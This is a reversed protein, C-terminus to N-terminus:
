PSTAVLHPSPAEDEATFRIYHRGGPRRRAPLHAHDIWHYVADRSIRLRAAVAAPSLEGPAPPSTDAPHIQPSTAIRQRCAAEAEPTFDVLYRHAARRATLLGTDIWSTITPRSVGLRASVAGM